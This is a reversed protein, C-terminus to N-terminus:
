RGAALTKLLDTAEYVLAIGPRARCDTRLLGDRRMSELAKRATEVSIGWRDAAYRSTIDEDPHLTFYALVHERLITM